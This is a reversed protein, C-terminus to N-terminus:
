FGTEDIENSLWEIIKDQYIVSEGDILNAYEDLGDLNINEIMKSCQRAWKENEDWHYEGSSGVLEPEVAYPNEDWQATELDDVDIEIEQAYDAIEQKIEEFREKDFM